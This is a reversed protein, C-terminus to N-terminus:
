PVVVKVNAEVGGTFTLLLTIQGDYLFVRRGMAGGTNTGNALSTIATVTRPTGGVNLTDGERVALKVDGSENIVWLGTDNATTVGGLGVKMTAEFIPQAAGPLAIQNIKSFKSGAVGPAESAERAVLQLGNTAHLAWLGVSNVNATVGTGRVTGKVLFEYDGGGLVLDSFDSFVVGAATGPAAANERLQLTLVGPATDVFVGLDNTSSVGALKNTVMQSIFGYYTGTYDFGPSRFTNWKALPLVRPAAYTDVLQQSAAYALGFGSDSSGDFSGVVVGSTNDTFVVSFTVVSEGTPAVSIEKGHGSSANNTQLIIFSKVTKTVGNVTLRRGPLMLPRLGTNADWGFLVSRNDVLTGLFIVLDGGISFTGIIKLNSGLGVNTGSQAVLKLTGDGANSFLCRSNVNKTVGAGRVESIFAIHGAENIVPPAFTYHTVGPLSPATQTDSLILVPPQGVMMGVHKTADAHRIQVASALVGSSNMAPSGLYDILMSGPPGGLMSTGSTGPGAINDGVNIVPSSGSAVVTGTVPFDFAAENLDDSNIVVNGSYTAAATADLAVQFGYSANPVLTAPVANTRYGSPVTISSLTLNATGTNRVLFSRVSAMNPATSAFDIVTAQGDSLETALSHSGNHVVIENLYSLTVDNGSGGLYSLKLAVGNYTVTAGEALGNFTGTIADAGDNNVITFVQNALLTYSGSLSLTVGTIDLLGAVNLQTYGSDATAGGIVIKLSGTNPITLTSSAGTSVDVGSNSAFVNTGPNLRVNGGASDLSGTSLDINAGSALNLVTAATRTIAASVTVAGSNADGIVLTSASIQDLETDTLGLTTASDDAGLHILKGSTKQRLSAIGSTQIDANSISMADANIVVNGSYPNTGDFGIRITGLGDNSTYFDAAMLGGSTNAGRTANITITGSGSSTVAPCLGSSNLNIGVGNNIPGTMAGGVGTLTITGTGANRVKANYVLRIGMGQSGANGTIAVAGGGTSEVISDDNVQVGNNQDGSNTGGAGVLTITGTNSRVIAGSDIAVGTTSSGGIGARGLIVINGSGTSEILVNSASVGYFDGTTQTTQQNSEITIGGNATVLSAGTNSMNLGASMKLTASGTGSLIVNVGTDFNVSDAGPTADDDQLDVQLNANSAFTIDGNLNVTDDGTGGNITLSPLTGTFTNVNISDTGVAANVTISTVSSLSVAGSDGTTYLGGNVSFTRGAAAFQLNGASPESVTLSDGNGSLDTVVIVHGATAVTYDPTPVTITFTQVSTTLAGNGNITTDDTLTFGITTTGATGNPTYTLTGTSSDVSPATTFLSPNSNSSIAFTLTQAVTSDGDDISTAWGTVTQTSSYNVPLLQDAGIVFSPMENVNTVTVALAQSDSLIPTGNDTVTVTVDYVNNGGVDTPAEFNPASNLTVVGTAPDISFKASDAGGSISYTKTQDLDPDASTVTTVATTKEAVNISAAAGGGNSTIVPAENVIVNITSTVAVSTQTGVLDSNADTVRWSITRSAFTLTPYDSTTYYTVSRLATQYNALTATGTLTLLGTGASYTGSIGNQTTLALLDGATFGASITATAGTIQTDDADSVTMTGDIAAAPTTKKYVITSGATMVPKDNSPTITITSTVAVSTEAGALDSNADIVAWTVTRNVATVTPDESTSQYTVSRLATQYNALTATGTLTLVGTVSSYTGSIGNQTTVALLDGTTYGASITATAGTIQTDDADNVTKTGDIITAAANEAYALTAGATVVPKDNIPTITITSTVAVSTQAGVLDSNADTVAWTVTRNVATATPDESTSRYTVSRLATQYNALTATGSLTLVGTVSSYTGSIGNQTTMALLDGTTLGASITATAGTIQTDDTDSVTMTGDIATAAANETYALIAGATVVPKDNTPTITITSTVAISTQAGVLDSNADTVAWTVTRSGITATLDESTSQYTVSRLATQYNALTATGTLTLVGTVSSYSGSIGNQTTVELLDGTTLGASITATAGTIQTDDSDNVTMTGDIATAAANEAYALTAGATVVPKDNTPTINITSTVAVSTQAGALDSNADTVAWTVTRSGTTVTPDESTSRYTVTRLATQYNALTATGSLTLVGTVSSYAGSIGNLTTVALLDGVTLGASITATAGTIQTDDVDSVTMTGDIITAAANEAYALTAGATVVPKDNTPTITITSTVAVSTQAGVLDSNADTVAWTVTRNVATVTPDESTSRYTVSRLATQYNALTTTGTLTLVGTVSSYTGSIGNQTTVALLDGATLGASITATAGTIQTDDTDSVTMTGDIATVADNEAYALTAGATVVPKDNTPTINITKTTTGTAAGLGDSNADTLSYTLLRTLKYANDTPDESATVYTLSRLVTQYSALTDLGSLTLVGTASDYSYIVNGSDTTTLTDGTLFGATIRVSGGDILTDDSDTVTTTSDVTLALGNELLSATGTVLIVPLDNVATLNITSTVAVSTQAGALDSNADTVAWTVTRSGATSTPDESTSQYTVRRFAAQYNALTATGSLTLVGTGASYSGSIGNLTTVALLDGTTLGASITATAGTIQTDDADNVTMTGDIATAAANETYALTAGATVVPKDNIPTITITSTVAVSTQAGVLDSNADTVAWTVTRNVATVTPDESTSQYTVSRLAAQYDALTTTGSLTLVGTVSSYTGSIGNQTTVALLDGTTLGASITATAGTIQTDDTDSVTMTGDIITAADNEAYALTAGATVVPKDNTPTITITSTVAVSTQAGALDSNADTVAWTVTRSGTTVTPDDSTSQYTVRRFAAQYNALTATGSLTLVGTGASYVGSIGNLTTVALLDGTTLGASITATAGTIQTDDVDSVTMTADIATAAANEAYALTAGATVVPKDNSPTITITSTVAVSTQAGVLDSNADTVAWTVTRNVATVTPDESTSRYTVSRLATQYNALTTTGTLTLIGTGASYTGSIGNQTTLALLDGTTLGASITATAGTIQTDDADNVTMTGDIATADDNEAYALTAGATVVPKDNSPTINITKTTTGTAAGLNDSNADTLSYTLVRTLKTANDTPDESATVYTLSRLVTQYNALTDTGSLTMVGTVANYSGTINGTDTTSLTDGSLFGTTISVSGGAIQTDDLDTVTTTSDVTLALGNESFSASGTVVIVPLDNVATLNITGTLTDTLATTSSTADKTNAGDNFTVTVVRSLDTNNVTPDDSTSRYRLANILAGVAAPTATTSSFTIVLDAATGGTTTAFNVNAYSITTGSVGIQGAATGIHAVSLLDGTVYGDLAVSLNGVNTANPRFNTPQDPDSTTAGSVFAAAAGQETYALGVTGTIDPADNELKITVGLTVAQTANGDNDNLTLTLTRTLTPNNSSNAFTLSEIVLEASRATASSNFTVVFNNGNGGAATGVVVWNSGDNIEVNTGTLQVNDLSSVAGIPLSVLDQAAVLGSVTLTAGNYDPSDIDTVTATADLTAAAANIANEFYSAAVLGAITPQDNVPNVNITTTVLTSSVSGVGALNNLGADTVLVTLTRDGDTPNDTLNNYIVTNLLTQFSTLTAYAAGNPTITFIGSANAYSVKFGGTVVVNSADAALPFATGGITVVESNGDLVGGLTFQMSSFNVNDADTMTASSTIAATVHTGNAVETWTVAHNVGATAGNLDVVPLDNDPTITLTGGAITNSDLAAPGGALANNNGDNVVLSYSRTLKTQNVTPNDSTSRFMLANIVYGINDETAAANLTLTLAKGIGTNTADRTAITTWASGDSIQVNTGSLQVANLAHTVGTPLEILDGTIYEAFTVRINGGGLSASVFDIDTVASASFLNVGLTGTAVGASEVSTPNLQTAALVPAENLKVITVVFAKEFTLSTQDTTRLRLNYTLKTEYDASPTLKLSNGAITFSANDEDGTGAVLTYTHTDAVNTDTTTLTGVTANAANNENITATSLSINTPYARAFGTLSIDFLAEDFDNSTIHVAATRTDAATPSYTVTFTTSAGPALSSALPQTIAFDGNHAGDKTAAIGTLNLTGSNTITYTKTPSTEGIIFTGFDSVTVADTLATGVPQEIDIEPDLRAPGSINNLEDYELASNNTDLFAWLIPAGGLDVNTLNVTITQGASFNLTQVAGVPGGGAYPDGNYLRLLVNNYSRGSAPDNTVQISVDSTTRRVTNSYTVSDIRLDADGAQIDIDSINSSTKGNATVRLGISGIYPTSYTVTTVSLTPNGYASDAASGYIGDGNFDWSYSVITDGDPDYSDTGTLTIPTGVKGSYGDYGGIPKAVAIPAVDLSTVTVTTTTISTAAPTKNDKVRLTITYTGIATYGPNTALAGSADPSAWNVGNSSNWDWLYEAIASDADLHYSDTGDVRFSRGAEKNTQDTIPAIVAVPVARTVADSLILIATATDMDTSSGYEAPSLSSTWSGDALQGFMNAQTRQSLGITGTQADITAAEGLLWGNLDKKWDRTGSSPTTLTTVGQLSLGKKIGYMAYWQGFWGANANSWHGDATWYKAIYNRYSTADADVDVSNSGFSLAALAGGTKALNNWEGSNSYGIGGETGKLYKFGYAFDDLAWQPFSIGLRDRAAGAALAPWQQASGDYRPQSQGTTGYEYAGRLSGDGMSWLLQDTCDQVFSYMTRLDKLPGYPVNLAKAQTESRLSLAVAMAAIGDAYTRGIFIIGKGNANSDSVQVAIGNSHNSINQTSALSLLTNRIRYTLPAYIEEVADEDPLHDHEAFAALALGTTGVTHEDTIGRTSWNYYVRDADTVSPTRYFYVLGKEMALHVRDALASVSLVRIVGSRTSVSGNADTIKLTYNKSGASSYSKTTKIYDTDTVAGSASTGDGFDFQYTYPAVGGWTKGWVDRATGTIAKGYAQGQAYSPMVSVKYLQQSGTTYTGLSNTAVIRWYYTNTAILGTIPAEVEMLSTGSGINYPGATLVGSAFTASTSYEFTISTSNGSPNIDAVLNARTMSTTDSHMNQIVISPTVAPDDIVTITMDQSDTLAPTGADSVRVNVLYTNNGGIDKPLGQSATFNFSLAGTSADITFQAADQGGTISYTRVQGVDPDTSVVTTALSTGEVVNFVATAGGGNSTIVPTENVNTVTVSIAQTDDYAAPTTGNDLVRVTVEFVNDANADQILDFDPAAIFALVGSTSNISFKASDAGGSISYALTSPVDVDTATVTTVATTNEAITVAATAGGSNSTIVPAENVNTVTVAISQTRTGAPTGNDTATVVLDYVNNAGSDLKSEFNPASVFTLVGSISDIAFRAADVGGTISYTISQTPLDGGDNAVVTTVATTNEAVNTAASAGGGNSTIVPADNADTVTVSLAQTDDLVPSGNDVIRVTVEYVNDLGVDTPVEYNPATAFTLVGTGAVISFKASDAGGSISFTKTSSADVDTSTVTTVATANEALSISGTAGGGNSTIIPAENVNTVTVAITQTKTGAPSGDDTATVILDYVNNAGVDLKTEFDPATNFSLGGTAAVISFKAADAGGTISYTIGQAPLDADTAVVTTVATSNEAVSIAATAGGGNSTIVPLDNVDTVTVSLVQTDDLVPSGNDVIRVTVEYVNDLGVDTPLEYNPATTFTLVGTGAVISFKASDAGGSISYTKTQSADVDTSTVTTVATTNEAVNISGTAGGGNSTIVPAENVNTVTVAITQTKTGVPSGDDTATVILDYVNNAGSDLKTEFDPASAFTLVGSTPDIAFLAADVGGSISYTIGQAPLDVDTAVVTTVATSNEAVNTAATAGGGNSTIVPVENVDTVTVSLAQTDDLVPSGNDVIRVTVEYVNDLGGATPVEYNPATTFTLVGTAAVISFKASDAGGSISYTKTQGADVETAAVTTVATSNEAVNISATAGGGNSTIVPAENVNTVTVAISQTQTGVPIGDDTATVILDYVNNGGADTPVEFDPATAFTLVGSAPDISFKASDAGGTISYTIGQAPLDVDTAVVTTVATSNEAVSITASAGGGNSTIVPPTTGTGTVALDFSAEDPDSSSISMVASAVVSEVPSFSVTFTTSDGAALSLTAPATTVSFLGANSGTFSIGYLTLTVPGENKITYTRTATTGAAVSGYSLASPQGDALAPDGTTAGNYVSIEAVQLASGTDQSGNAVLSTGASGSDNSDQVWYFSSLVTSTPDVYGSADYIAMKGNKLEYATDGAPATTTLTASYDGPTLTLEEFAFVEQTTLSTDVQLSTLTAERLVTNGAQDGGLGSYLKFTMDATANVGKSLAFLARDIKVVGGASATMRFNWTRGSSADVPDNTGTHDIALLANAENVNAVTVTLTQSDSLNGTGNDTVTVILEYVNNLDGDAPNEYDPVSRFTLVGSSSNISFRASDAGGSLSYTMTQGADADTATVTTVATTNEAVSTAATAGGGNSTIVPAQNTYTFLTNAANTGTSTTVEVSATGFSGSPTTATITTDDVVTVATAASGGITVGTAGTFKTGTITVSTGGLTPGTAPSVNTVTPPLGLGTFIYAAGSQTASENPTGNIGTTSSDEAHAGVVVTEGSLAVSIGFSDNVTVQSAKLYAQQSWTTASRVFVYAAGAESASENPTSNVGTTSSDEAYASVVLTDGSLAVSAGFTDGGSVQSAKLYAQQSWTTGSRVFVNAAGSNAGSENPTSNIGTTSSDEGLNGVVLTDGSVAVSNGFNDAAGVQSAKLYAQQSWTTGSRVFVYAAGADTDNENPTSNVGTTSSDELYAGVVVTGGSVAVSRGFNDDVSVQSAKLYAQQSWTTGSRVFVYAAGAGSASENPTSGVGTTSSDENFAGVVVTDGSVAVSFGFNDNLTVQSAKLYAQQSWTTGSRVFVYAAGANAASVNPTSNVGTTSSDESFAGVVLTDGSLAVSVGFQDEVRVQSAKLYAQQSWTSGSRVFVYVAGSNSASENPTSNVGTTSSDEQYAGVVVTDGSVAVSYGFLDSAQTTGVANPKLYAQQAIPDITIPYRASSEDVRLIIGGSPGAVFRSPLVKGDADWVKLGAYTVVPAGAGDRFYVTQTDAAVSAKLTGRTGLVMDLSAKAVAGQPRRAVNFGHELGRQDNIFWEQVDANWQYSLRQGAAKVAPQGGVATQKKGFGYSRLELGWQWDAAKPKAMFGRGDFQTSWQQAKNQAQWAGGKVPQFSHEWASHAARISSWDSKELGQPVQDPSTLQEPKGPLAVEQAATAGNSNLAAAQLSGPSCYLALLLAAFSRAMLPIIKM